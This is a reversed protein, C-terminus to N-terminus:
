DRDYDDYDDRDERTRRRSFVDRIVKLLDGGFITALYILLLPMALYAIVQVNHWFETLRDTTFFTIYPLDMGVLEMRYLALPSM